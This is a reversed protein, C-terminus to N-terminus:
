YLNTVISIITGKPHIFYNKVVKNGETTFQLGINNYSESNCTIESKVDACVTQNSNMLCIINMNSINSCLGPIIMLSMSFVISIIMKAVSHWKGPQEFTEFLSLIMLCVWIGLIVIALVTSKLQLPAIFSKSPDNNLSTAALPMFICLLPLVYMTYGLVKAVAM